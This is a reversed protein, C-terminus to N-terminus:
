DGIVDWPTLTSKDKEEDKPRDKRKKIKLPQHAKDKPITLDIKLHKLDDETIKDNEDSLHRKVIEKATKGQSISKQKNNRGKKGEGSLSPKNVSKAM